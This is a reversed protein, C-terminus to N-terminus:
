DSPREESPLADVWDYFSKLGPLSGGMMRGLCTFRETEHWYRKLVPLWDPKLNLYPYNGEAEQRESGWMLQYPTGCRTCMAEGSYDSWQFTMPYADCTVCRQERASPERNAWLDYDHLIGHKANM